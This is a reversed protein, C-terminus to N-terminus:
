AARAHNAERVSYEGDQSRRLVKDYTCMKYLADAASRGAKWGMHRAVAAPGPFSRGAALETKIFDMIKQRQPPLAKVPATVVPAPKRGFIPSCEVHYRWGDSMHFGAMPDIDKRCWHCHSM